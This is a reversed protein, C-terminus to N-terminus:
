VDEEILMKIKTETIASITGGSEAAAITQRTVGVRDAMEQQTIGKKARYRLIRDKLDMAM